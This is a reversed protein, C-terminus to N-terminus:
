GWKSVYDNQNNSDSTFFGSLDAVREILTFLNRDEPRVFGQEVLRDFFDIFIPSWFGEIDLILILKKHLGIQKWTLLEFMEDMTGLGGPLIVFADSREFMMSKRTHMDEVFHLETIGQYSGEKAELFRPIVGYVKGKNELVTRATIGMLGQTSGGYVLEINNKALINGLEKAAHQYYEPVQNSSSCYVAVSKINHM